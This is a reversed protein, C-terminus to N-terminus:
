WSLIVILIEFTFMYMRNSKFPCYNFWSWTTYSYIPASHEFSRCGMRAIKASLRACNSNITTVLDRSRDRSHWTVLCLVGALLLKGIDLKSFEPVMWNLEDLDVLLPNHGLFKSFLACGLLCQFFQSIATYPTKQLSLRYIQTRNVELKTQRDIKIYICPLVFHPWFLWSSAWFLGIGNKLRSMWPCLWLEWVKFIREPARILIYEPTNQADNPPYSNQVVRSTIYCTESPM